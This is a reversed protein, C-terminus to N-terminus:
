EDFAGLKAQIADRLKERVTELPIRDMLPEFFGEVILRQAYREDLGRSRLYFMQEDDVQGVTAGHTCRVDNAEIELGPISDARAKPSLVLNRNAQYADSRQANKHVHILGQYITRAKDQLVGKFLLDTTTHGSWHEQQTHHDLHQNSDAFYFGHVNAQSGPGMMWVEHHTKTVKSGLTGIIWHLTADRELMAKQAGLSYVHRGWDQITVFTLTAGDKLFLEVAHDSMAQERQTESGYSEIYTVESGADAIILTHPFLGAHASQQWIGARFPLEVKVGAPVYLFTGGSWLAAHLAEFKGYTPPVAQTMLYDRLINAHERVATELDTFIVGQERLDDRLWTFMNSADYQAVYGAAEADGIDLLHKLGEPLEDLSKAQPARELVPQLRDLKLTSIDTRRWLEDSITPMPTKEYIAWADQRAKRVWAPESRSNSLQEVTAASALTTVTTQTM